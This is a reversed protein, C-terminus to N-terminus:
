EGDPPSPLKMWHTVNLFMTLKEGSVSFFNKGDFVAIGVGILLQPDYILVIHDEVPLHEKVSIWHREFVRNAIGDKIL